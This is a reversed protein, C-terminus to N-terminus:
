YFYKSVKTFKRASGPWDALIEAAITSGTKAQFEKLLNGVDEIDEDTELPLLEVM